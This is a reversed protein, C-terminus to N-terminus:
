ENAELAVTGLTVYTAGDPSQLREGSTPDVLGAIITLKGAATATPTLLLRETFPVGVQWRETPRTGAGPIADWGAVLEGSEDLLQVFTHLPAVTPAVPEWTLSIQTSRPTHGEAIAWATLRVLDGLLVPRTPTTTPPQVAEFLTLRESDSLWETPGAVAGATLASEASSQPDGRAVGDTYLWLRDHQQLLYAWEASQRDPAEPPLRYIGYLAVDAEPRNLYGFLLAIPAQYPAPNLVLADGTQGENALKAQVAADVDRWQFGLSIQGLWSLLLVSGLASVGLAPGLWRRPRYIAIVAAVLLALALLAGSPRHQWAVDLWAARPPLLWLPYRQGFEQTMPLSNWLVGLLQIAIGALALLWLALRQGGASALAIEVAPALMLILCPLIPLLYRPGWVPGGWFVPWLSYVLLTALALATLVMGWLRHRAVFRPLSGILLLLPPAFLFISRDLSFLFGIIGAALSGDFRESYGFQLPDAFRWLNFGVLALAALILPLAFASLLPWRRPKATGFWLALGFFPVALLSTPRVTMAVALLAGALLANRRKQAEWLLAFAALTLFGVIPEGFTTDAYVWAFTSLGFLLGLAIGVPSRYGLRQSTSVLLAGTAATAVMNLLPTATGLTAGPILRGLLIPLTLLLSHGIGYKSYLAGERGFLAQHVYPEDWFLVSQDVRGHYVINRAVAFVAHEDISHFAGSITLWYIAFLALGLTIATSSPRPPM